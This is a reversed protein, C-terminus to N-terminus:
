RISPGILVNLVHSTAVVSSSARVMYLSTFFHSVAFPISGTRRPLAHSLSTDFM